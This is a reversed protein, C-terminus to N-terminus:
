PSGSIAGEIPTMMARLSEVEEIALLQDRLRDAIRDELISRVLSDYKRHLEEPHIPETAGGRADRRTEELCTGDSFEVTVSAGWHGERARQEFEPAATVTVRNALQRVRPDDLVEPSFVDADSRGTTAKIALTYPLSFKAALVSRPEGDDLTAGLEFTRVTIQEINEPDLDRVGEIAALAEIPAHTYRCAAHIKFYGECLYYTAGLSDFSEVLREATVADAATYPLLCDAVANDVGEVGGAALAAALVGHACNIGAYFDRVTSGRLAASWHTAVFPNVAIRIAAALQDVDLGMLRGVGVAGSVPAWGGHPHLGDKLPRIVNGLRAGVEYGAIVATLFEQGTVDLHEALALTPPVTHIAPHGSRQNGEDLELTTGGSANLLAAVAPAQRRGSAFALSGGGGTPRGSLVETVEPLATGIYDTKSGRLCVGITDLLVLRARDAVATPVDDLTLSIAYKASMSAVDTGTM